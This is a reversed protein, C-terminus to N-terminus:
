NTNGGITMSEIHDIILSIGKAQQIYDRAKEPDDEAKSYLERKILDVRSIFHKGAAQVKFFSKYGERVLNVNGSIM